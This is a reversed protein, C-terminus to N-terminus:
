IRLHLHPKPRAHPDAVCRPCTHAGGAAGVAQRRQDGALRRVKAAAADNEPQGFAPMVIGGNAIYFNAYSAALREGAQRHQKGNDDQLCAVPPPGEPRGRWRRCLARGAATGHLCRWRRSLARGAVTGHLCEPTHLAFAPPTVGGEERCPGVGVLTDWEERCPGVGVLTDWEERCPGVGVLTDWEERCPGVGVLTDWEEQTRFMPTPCPMKIVQLPRGKADTERQLLELAQKSIAHQLLLPAPACRLAVTIAM